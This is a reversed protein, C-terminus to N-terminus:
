RTIAKGNTGVVFWRAGFANLGQGNTAGPKNGDGLFTYLPHGGYTVQRAGNSRRSTRLKSAAVGGGGAKPKGHVTVPPWDVACAGNCTSKTTKDKQFLYLTRGKADVLITGLSTHRTKVTAPAGKSVAGGATAAVVAVALLAVVFLSLSRKM